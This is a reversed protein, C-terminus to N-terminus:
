VDFGDYSPKEPSIGDMTCMWIYLDISQNFSAVLEDMTRGQFAIVTRLNNVEGSFIQNNTDYEVDGLYDRYELIM